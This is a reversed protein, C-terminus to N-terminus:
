GGVDPMWYPPTFWQEYQPNYHYYYQPVRGTSPYETQPGQYSSETACGVLLVVSVLLLLGLTALFRKRMVNKRVGGNM